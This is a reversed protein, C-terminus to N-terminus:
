ACDDESAAPPAATAFHAEAKELVEAVALARGIAVGRALITPLMPVAGVAVMGMQLALLLGGEGALLQAYEIREACAEADTAANVRRVCEAFMKPDISM